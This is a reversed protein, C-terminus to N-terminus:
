AIESIVTTLGNGNYTTKFQEPIPYEVYDGDAKPILVNMESSKASVIAVDQSAANLYIQCGDTKDISITPVKTLVQMQVSQCNVFEVSSVVSDLVVSSKKCSDLVISNVKGKVQITSGECKYIYVVQNMETESVMIGPQNKQYEIIWKKGELEKRPPRAVPESAPRSGASTKGASVVPAPASRLNPNKHTQMDATVKKLGKTVNEGQNLQAFLKARDQDTTQSSPSDEAFLEGAPMPPPPPGPPPPIVATGSSGKAANQVASGGKANWVLGTTHHQKVYAQLETLVQIWARVWEVHNKDKEKWDKLVRNTYFQGADNMEKIYPGPAPAVTVWGLAPISESIASLHNFQSSTRNKERFSQISQIFQSTPQLLKMMEDQAPAKSRSAVVLFQRQAKFGEQVMGCHKAVDGGIASSSKVYTALPGSIIDDFALVSPSSSEQFHSTSPDVVAECKSDTTTKVIPVDGGLSRLKGEFVEEDYLSDTDSSECQEVEKERCCDCECEESDVLSNLSGKVPRERNVKVGQSKSSSNPARKFVLMIFRNAETSIEKYLPEFRFRVFSINQRTEDNSQGAFPAVGSLLVYTLVGLSWVDTQPFVPEENLIEPAAFPLYSRSKVRESAITGLKSVRQACGFDCLKVDLSRASTLLVNDPQIDLHCLGRWHLYQLGDLVQSIISVVM